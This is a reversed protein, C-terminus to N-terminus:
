SGQRTKVAFFSTTPSLGFCMRCPTFLYCLLFLSTIFECFLQSILFPRIVLEIQQTASSKQGEFEKLLNEYYGEVFITQAGSVQWWLKGRYDLPVGHRIVTKLDKTKTLQELQLGKKFLFGDIM